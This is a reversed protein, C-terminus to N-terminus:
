VYILIHKIIHAYRPSGMTWYSIPRDRQYRWSWDESFCSEEESLLGCARWRNPPVSVGTPYMVGDYIYIAIVPVADFEGGGGNIGEM